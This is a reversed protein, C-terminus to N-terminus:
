RAAEPHLAGSRRARTVRREPASIPVTLWLVAVAGILILVSVVPMTAQAIVAGAGPVQVAPQWVAGTVRYALADEAENADGKMTVVAGDGVAEMAVIRHTVLNSTLESPLSVVDGVELEAVPTKTAILLDGTMIQPEMSGSIVALPRIAGAATAGWLAGGIAGVAALSWLAVIAIRRPTQM